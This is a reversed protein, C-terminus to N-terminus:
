SISGGKLRSLFLNWALLLTIGVFSGLLFWLALDPLVVSTGPQVLDSSAIIDQALAGAQMSKEVFLPDTSVLSSAGIDQWRIFAAFLGSGILAPLVGKLLPRPSIIIQTNALAYTTVTKGKVSWWKSEHVVLGADYLKKVTYDVTSFPIGLSAVLESITQSRQALAELIVRATKNHLAETLTSLRPDTLDLQILTRKM